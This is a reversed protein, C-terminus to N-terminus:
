AVRRLRIWSDAHVYTPVANTAVQAWRLAFTGSAGATILTGVPIIAMRTIGNAPQGRVSSLNGATVDQTTLNAPGSTGGSTWQLTAGAPGSWGFNAGTTASAGANQSYIVYGTLEYRANAAVSLALESDAAMTANTRQEDALKTVELPMLSSLLEPTLIQGAYLSPYPM